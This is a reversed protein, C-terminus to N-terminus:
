KCYYPKFLNDNVLRAADFQKKEDVNLLGTLLNTIESNVYKSLGEEELYEKLKGECIMGYPSGKKPRMEYEEFDMETEIIDYPYKGIFCFYFIMGVMWLDACRADYDDLDGIHPYRYLENDLSLFEKDCRFKKDKAAFLESVGFDILKMCVDSKITVSGDDADEIFDSNVLLINEPCLDM